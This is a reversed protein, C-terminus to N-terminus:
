RRAVWFWSVPCRRGVAIQMYELNQELQRADVVPGIQSGEALAHGVVLSAVAASMKKLLSM